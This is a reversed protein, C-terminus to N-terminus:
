KAQCARLLTAQSPVSPKLRRTVEDEKNGALPASEAVVLEGVRESQAIGEFEMVLRAM